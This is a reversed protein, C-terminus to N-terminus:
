PKLTKSTVKRISKLAVHVKNFKKFGPIQVHSERNSQDCIDKWYSRYCSCLVLNSRGSSFRGCTFLINRRDQKWQVM